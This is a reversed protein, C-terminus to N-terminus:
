LFVREVSWWAGILAIFLSAPVAIRARYWDKRGFWYGVLLFAALIVALQGFEVGINFGVLATIFRTPDIGVDGLVSAFGLGHLLGFAFVLATRSRLSGFGLVNEFGVYVISLAILPEVVSAPVSIIELSALALTITHALTFATVQFLIPRLQLSFFFLGLVFLIHDLGKPVIHEFGVVIYRLFVAGAGETAIEGRPLPESLEGGALFGAYADEGADAQRVVLEGYEEAWGFQVPADGDPLDARFTLTSTRALDFNGVEPVEIGVFEPTLWQGDVVIMLNDAMQPWFARMEEALAQPEMARFRDYAGEEPAETTETVESLDIDALISEVAMRLEIVVEEASVAVDSIGPDIEHSRAGPAVSM